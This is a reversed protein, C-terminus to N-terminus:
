TSYINHKNFNIINNDKSDYTSKVELLMDDSDIADQISKAFLTNSTDIDDLTCPVSYMYSEDSDSIIMGTYFGNLKYKTFFIDANCWVCVCKKDRLLYVYTSDIILHDFEILGKDTGHGLMVIRDHSKIQNKLIKKSVNTTIITWDKDSYIASLMDTTYDKPHIVLTKM